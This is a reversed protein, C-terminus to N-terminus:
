YKNDTTHAFLLDLIIEFGRDLDITDSEADYIEDEINGCTYVVTSYHPIDDANGFFDIKIFTIDLSKDYIYSWDPNYKDFNDIIQRAARNASKLNANLAKAISDNM